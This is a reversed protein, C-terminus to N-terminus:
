RAHDSRPRARPAELRDLIPGMAELETYYMASADIGKADLFRLRDRVAPRASLWPLAVGWVLALALGSLALARWANDRTQM